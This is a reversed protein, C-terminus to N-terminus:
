ALLRVRGQLAEVREVAAHFRRDATVVYSDEAVALALYVCDYVPHDLLAALDSAARLYDEIPLTAVPANYLEDLRAHAQTATLEGRRRRQWLVNAAELLWLSPAILDEDLLADAADKGPEDLVWKLAVSADVVVSM